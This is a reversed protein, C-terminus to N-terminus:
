VTGSRLSMRPFRLYTQLVRQHKYTQASLQTLIFKFVSLSSSLFDPLSFLAQTVVVSFANSPKVTHAQM